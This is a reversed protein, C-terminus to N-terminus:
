VLWIFSSVDKSRIPSLARTPSLARMSTRSGLKEPVKPASESSTTTHNDKEGDTAPNLALPVPLNAHPASGFHGHMDPSSPPSLCTAIAPNGTVVSSGRRSRSLTSSTTCFTNNNNCLPTSNSPTHDSVLSKAITTFSPVHRVESFNERPSLNSPLLSGVSINRSPFHTMSHKHQTGFSSKSRTHDRKSTKSNGISHILTPKCPLPPADNCKAATDAINHIHLHYKLAEVGLLIDACGRRRCRIINTPKLGADYMM